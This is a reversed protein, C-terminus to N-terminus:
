FRRPAKRGDTAWPWITNTPAEASLVASDYNFQIDEFTEIRPCPNPAVPPCEKATPEMVSLATMEGTAKAVTSTKQACSFSFLMCCFVGAFTLVFWINKRMNEEKQKHDKM